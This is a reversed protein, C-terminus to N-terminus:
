PRAPSRRRRSPLRIFFGNKYWGSMRSVIRSLPSALRDTRGAASRGAEVGAATAGSVPSPGPHVACLRYFQVPHRGGFWRYGVAQRAPLEVSPHRGARGAPRLPVGPRQIQGRAAGSGAAGFDAAVLLFLRAGPDPLYGAGCLGAAHRRDRDRPQGRAAAVAPCPRM